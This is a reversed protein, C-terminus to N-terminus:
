ARKALEQRLQKRAMEIAKEKSMPDGREIIKLARRQNKNAPEERENKTMNRFIQLARQYEMRQPKKEAYIRKAIKLVEAKRKSLRKDMVKRPVFTANQEVIVGERHPQSEVPAAERAAMEAAKRASPKYDTLRLGPPRDPDVSISVAAKENIPTMADYNLNLSLDPM